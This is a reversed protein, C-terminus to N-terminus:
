KNQETETAKREPSLPHFKSANRPTELCKSANRPTELAGQFWGFRTFKKMKELKENEASCLVHGAGLNSTMQLFKSKRQANKNQLRSLVVFFNSIRQASGEIFFLCDQPMLGLISLIQPASSTPAPPRELFSINFIRKQTSSLGASDLLLLVVKLM